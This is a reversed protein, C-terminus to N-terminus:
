AKTLPGLPGVVIALPGIGGIMTLFFLIEELKCCVSFIWFVGIGLGVDTIVSSLRHPPLRTWSWLGCGHCSRGVGRFRSSVGLLAYYTIPYQLNYLAHM